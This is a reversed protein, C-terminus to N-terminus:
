SDLARRSDVCAVTGREAPQAATEVTSPACYPRAQTRQPHRPQSLGPSRVWAPLPPSHPRAPTGFPTRVIANCHPDPGRTAHESPPPLPHAATFARSAIHRSHCATPTARTRPLPTANHPALPSYLKRARSPLRSDQRGAAPSPPLAPPAHAAPPRTRTTQDLIAERTDRTPRPTGHAAHEPHPHTLPPALTYRRHERGPRLSPGTPFKPPHAHPKAHRLTAHTTLTSPALALAHWATWPSGPPVTHEKTLTHPRGDPCLM